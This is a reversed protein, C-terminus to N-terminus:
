SEPTSEEPYIQEDGAWSLGQVEDDGEAPFKDWLGGSHLGQDDVEVDGGDDNDIAAELFAKTPEVPDGSASSLIVGYVYEDDQVLAVVIGVQMGEQEETASYGKQKDGIDGLDVDQVEAGGALETAQADFEEVVQDFGSGANGDDDFKAIFTFISLPGAPMEMDAGPTGQMMTELDISYQRGVVEQIGDLSGFDFDDTEQAAAPRAVLVGLMAVVVLSVVLRWSRLQM